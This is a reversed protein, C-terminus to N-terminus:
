EVLKKVSQYYAYVRERTREADKIFTDVFDFDTKIDNKELELNILQEKVAKKKAEEKEGKTKSEIVAELFEVSKEVKIKELDYKKNITDSKIKVYLRLQELWGLMKDAKEIFDICDDLAKPNVGQLTSIDQLRTRNEIQTEYLDINHKIGDRKKEDSIYKELIIKLVSSGKLM